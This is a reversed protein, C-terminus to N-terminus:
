LDGGYSCIKLFFIAHHGSICNFKKFFEYESLFKKDKMSLNYLFGKKEALQQRLKKKWNIGIVRRHSYPVKYVGPKAEFTHISYGFGKM